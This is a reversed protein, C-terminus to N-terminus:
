RSTGPCPPPPSSRRRWRSARSTRSPSSSTAASFPISSPARRWSWRRPPSGSRTRPIGTCTRITATSSSRRAGSGAWIETSSSASTPISRSPGALLRRHARPGQRPQVAPSPRKLRLRSPQEAQDKKQAGQQDAKIAQELEKQLEADSQPQQQEPQAQEPQQQEPQAQQSQQQQALLFILALLM